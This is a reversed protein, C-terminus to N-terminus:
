NFVYKELREFAEKLVLTPLALNFRVCNKGHFPEGNQCFVGVEYCKRLLDTVCANNNKCWDSCDVFLMYSGDVNSCMAGDFHTNVFDVAYQVNNELVACLDNVWNRGTDTYAGILAYMSCISLSNYHSLSAQQNVRDRLSKDYIISYASSLGACNFTKSLSYFSCVRKEADSNITHLPIHKHDSFVLDSWIEDCLVVVDHKKFIHIAQELETSEWVRGSPNHPSCFICTHINNEIILKEMDEYDMRWINDDDKKLYSLVPIYGNNLLTKTFGIYTPAHILIKSGVPATAHLASTIGGLVNIEPAIKDQTLNSVAFSNHQWDIIANYYEPRPNFYGFLAHEFRNEISEVISPCTAFNMDAIWMPIKSFGDRVTPTKDGLLFRLEDFARADKNTRDVFTEFDFM